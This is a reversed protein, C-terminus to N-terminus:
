WDIVVERVDYFGHRWYLASERRDHFCFSIGWAEVLLIEM